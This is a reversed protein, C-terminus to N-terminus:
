FVVVGQTPTCLGAKEQSTHKPCAHTQTDWTRIYHQLGQKLKKDCLEDPRSSTAMRRCAYAEQTISNYTTM